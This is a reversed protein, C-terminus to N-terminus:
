DRLRAFSAASAGARRGFVTGATLGSGGPYNHYFLGGAIEGCAFLGPIPADGADRVHADTDIAIGGFTFTIGCTVAFGVFPPKTLPLAWNTKPPEIGITGKGDRVTPDFAGPQVAANYAEVTATLTEGDVRMLEARAGLSGAEYRSAVATDYDITSVLPLNQADFLQFALAEPQELIHRGYKAYTYNRFDAGEDMFRTGSQNVSVGYPYAQRSYRNTLGRDGSPPAFADWAIAHCGSWHGASRAGHSIAAFLPGGTDYPTGRVKALDWGPGLYSARARADAQFGGSALIVASAHVDHVGGGDAYRVGSVLDGDRLLDVVGAEYRIPIGCREIAALEAEILGKGGGGSGVVLNGWFRRRGDVRFSQREFMLRWTVGHGALWRLADSAEEVLVSTLEPSCRGHTIRVMDARFDDVSYGPIDISEADEDSLDVISRLEDLGAFTTRFAGATFYTNGGAWSRPAKELICVSAGAEKASLAASLGANGSGVVIVDYESM